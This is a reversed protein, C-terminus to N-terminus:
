IWKQRRKENSKKVPGFATIRVPRIGSFELIGKRLTNHGPSKYILSYQQLIM